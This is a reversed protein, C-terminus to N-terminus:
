FAYNKAMLNVMLDRQKLKSYFICFFSDNRESLINKKITWRIENTEMEIKRKLENGQTEIKGLLDKKEIKVVDNLDEALHKL